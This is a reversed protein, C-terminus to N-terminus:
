RNSVHPVSDGRTLRCRELLPRPTSDGRGERGVTSAIRHVQHISGSSCGGTLARTLQRMAPAVQLDDALGGGDHRVPVREGPAREQSHVGSRPEGSPSLSRLMANLTTAVGNPPRMSVSNGYPCSASRGSPMEIVVAWASLSAAYTACTFSASAIMTPPRMSLASMM